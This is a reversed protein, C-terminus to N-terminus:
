KSNVVMNEEKLYRKHVKNVSVSVYRETIGAPQIWSLAYSAPGGMLLLMEDECPELYFFM